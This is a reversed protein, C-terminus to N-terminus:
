SGAQLTRTQYYVAGQGIWGEDFFGSGKPIITFGKLLRVMLVQFGVTQLHAFVIFQTGLSISGQGQAIGLILRM